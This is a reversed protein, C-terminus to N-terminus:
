CVYGLLRVKNCLRHLAPPPDSEAFVNWSGDLCYRELSIHPRQHNPFLSGTYYGPVVNIGVHLAVRADKWRGRQCPLEALDTTLM